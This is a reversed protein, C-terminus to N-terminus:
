NRSAKTGPARRPGHRTAASAKELIAVVVAKPPTCLDAAADLTVAAGAAEKSQAIM